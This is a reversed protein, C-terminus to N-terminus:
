IVRNLKLNRLNIMEAMINEEDNLENNNNNLFYNKRSYQSSNENNQHSFAFSSQEFQSYQGENPKVVVNVFSDNSKNLISTLEDAHSILLKQTEKDLAVIEVNMKQNEFTMNIEIEGLKEPFLKMKVNQTGNEAMISIQDKVQSLVSSKIQSSEDSVQIIKNNEIFKLKMNESSMRSLDIEDKFNEKLKNIEGSFTDKLSSVRSQDIETPSLESTKFFEEPASNNLVEANQHEDETQFKQTVGIKAALGNMFSESSSYSRILEQIEKGNLDMSKFIGFRGNDIINDLDLNSTQGQNINVVPLQSVLNPNKDSYTNQLAGLIMNILNDMNVANTGNAENTGHDDDEHEASLLNLIDSQSIGLNEISNNRNFIGEAFLDIISTNVDNSGTDSSPDAINAHNLMMSIMNMFSNKNGNKSFNLKNSNLSSNNLATLANNLNINM